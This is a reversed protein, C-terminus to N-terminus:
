WEKQRILKSATNKLNYYKIWANRLINLILIMGFITAYGFINSIDSLETKTYYDNRLGYINLYFNFCSNIKSDSAAFYNKVVIGENYAKGFEICSINNEFKFVCIEEKSNDSYRKELINQKMTHYDQLLSSFSPQRSQLQSWFQVCKDDSHSYFPYQYYYKAPATYDGREYVYAQVFDSSM